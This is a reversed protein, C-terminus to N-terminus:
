PQAVGDVRRLIAYGNRLSPDEAAVVFRSTETLSRRIRFGVDTNVDDLIVTRASGLHRLFEHDADMHRDWESPDIVVTDYRADAGVFAGLTPPPDVKAPPFLRCNLMSSGLKRRRLAQLAPPSSCICSVHPATRSRACGALFSETLGRGPSAGVILADQIEEKEAIVRVSAFFPDDRMSSVAYPLFYGVKRELRHLISGLRRVLRPRPRGAQAAPLAARISRRSFWDRGSGVTDRKTFEQFYSLDRVAGTTRDRLRKALNDRGNALLVEEIEAFWSQFDVPPLQHLTRSRTAADPFAALSGEAGSNLVIAAWRARDTEPHRLHPFGSACEFARAEEGACLCAIILYAWEVPDPHAAQYKVLVYENLAVLDALAQEAKGQFLKLRAIRFKPEPMWQVHNLSRLYFGEAEVLKRSSLMEDGRRLLTLHEGQCHIHLSRGGSAASVVTLPAFPNLQIIKEGAKLNTKLRLWQSIQDRHKDTHRSHVLEFGAATIKELVEPHRFLHNLKELVNAEDAFVCNVMDVFGAAELAPTRETVLCSRSAPIEFHKRVVERAVTGCTPVVQSANITRAYREGFLMQGPSRQPDYGLHPCILSPYQASVIRQIKSRWPYLATTAGTFLVPIRKAEGYDHFLSPEICNPWVFLGDALEPTHEAATVSIAFFTEIGYEEVDSLFGARADCWADANHLAAKPISPRSKLNSIRPKRCTLQNLGLEFLALNPQLRDCIEGFDGDTNVVVVEFFNELCRVHAHRHLLLFEPLTDDQKHQFFALRPKAGTNDM